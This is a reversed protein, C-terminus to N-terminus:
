EDLFVRKVRQSISTLIEYPITDLLEAMRNLPIMKGFIEVDDGEHIIIGLSEAETIDVMTLDMCIRGAVPFVHGGIAVSGKGNSLRRDLGDAYGVPIVALTSDKDSIWSKNYGVTDGKVIKRIQTITSKLTLVPQLPEKIMDTAPEGYLGIGTRVMDFCDQGFREIGASNLIHGSVHYSLESNMLHLYRKFVDIQRLTYDDHEKNDASALHSFLSVARLEPQTQLTDIVGEIQGPEFGLRNMGTNVEIHVPYASLGQQIAFRLFASEIGPSYLAPELKYKVIDTFSAEEPNMVMIPISVGANRISVGEDAFAVGIYDVGQWQMLRAFEDAGAGYAQAKLMAMLKVDSPIMSRYVGVNHRAAPLSIELRTNHKREQLANAIRELRYERAGKILIGCASFWDPTMSELFSDTDKFSKTNLVKLCDPLASGIFFLEQIGANKFLEAMLQYAGSNQAESGPLASIIAKLNKTTSAKRLIQLSFPLGNVDSHYADNVLVSGQIGRLVEQRMAVPELNKIGDAIEASPIGCAVAASLVCGINQTTAPDAFPLLFSINQFHCQVQRNVEDTVFHFDVSFLKNSLKNRVLASSIFSDTADAIVRNANRFLKLKEDALHDRGTFNTVHASLINVLIGLDPAILSELVDMEGPHSIGAEIIIFDDQPNAKLLSLPVGIASNWSKPSRSVSFHASLVQYLWEKVVTKGNSGTIAIVMGKCQKRHEAALNQLAKLVDDVNVFTAEPFQRTLTSNDAILFVRVGQKYASDIYKHGNTQKGPLAAFLTVSPSLILRSDIAIDKVVRTQNGTVVGGCVVAIRGASYNM